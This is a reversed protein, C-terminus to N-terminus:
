ASTPTMARDNRARSSSSMSGVALLHSTKFTDQRHQRRYIHLNQPHVSPDSTCPGAHPPAMHCISSDAATIQPNTSSLAIQLGLSM